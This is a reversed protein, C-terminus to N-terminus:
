ARAASTGASKKTPSAVIESIREAAADPTLHDVTSRVSARFDDGSVKTLTGLMRDLAAFTSAQSDPEFVWGNVGDRVLESVAQSYASGLVPVGCALAENVVLGWEDSLTPFVLVDTDRYFSPLSEYRVAGEWKVSFTSAMPVASIATRLPGDGVIQLQVRIEPHKLCWSELASLILHLGKRRIVQGVYLLNLNTMATTSSDRADRKSPTFHDSDVVQPIISIALAESALSRIYDAGSRGNVIVEDTLRLVLRRLMRRIIGRGKESVESVTAWVVLKSSPVLLHYLCAQVTRLGFEASIVAEPRYRWLASLTDYPIHLFIEDDFGSPHKQHYRLIWSKLLQVDLSDWSPAWDRNPEMATSVLVRLHGVRRSLANLVPVRYPPIFNTLLAVRNGKTHGPHM